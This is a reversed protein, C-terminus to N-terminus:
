KLISFPFVYPLYLVKLDTLRMLEAVGLGFVIWLLIVKVNIELNYLECPPQAIKVDIIGYRANIITSGSM